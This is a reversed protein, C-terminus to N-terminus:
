RLILFSPPQRGGNSVTMEHPKAGSGEAPIQLKQSRLPALSCGRLGRPLGPNWLVRRRSIGEWSRKLPLWPGEWKLLARMMDFINLHM